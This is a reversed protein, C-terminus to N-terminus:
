DDNKILMIKRYTNFILWIPPYFLFTFLSNYFIEAYSITLESFNYILILFVLNSFFIAIIFTFWDTFLSFNVTVNRIYSAVFTVTLYSLASLGLPLGMVVDNIIGAFFIHGSGLINPYKLMWYYIIIIQINFSLIEFLDSFHTDVESISLFYLFILPGSNILSSLFNRYLIAM